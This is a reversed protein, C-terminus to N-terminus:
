SAVAGVFLDYMSFCVSMACGGVQGERHERQCKQGQAQLTAVCDRIRLHMGQLPLGDVKGIHQHLWLGVHSRRGLLSQGM